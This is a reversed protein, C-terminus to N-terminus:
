QTVTFESDSTNGTDEEFKRFADQTGKNIRTQILGPRALALRTLDHNSLKQRIESLGANAAQLNAQLETNLALQKEAALKMAEMSAQQQQMALNLTANETAMRQIQAQTDDYYSKAAFGAGCLIFIFFITIFLKVM